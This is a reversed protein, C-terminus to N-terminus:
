YTLIMDVAFTFQEDKNGADFPLGTAGLQGDYWDYRCEPRILVNPHPRWNLGATVEYFDGAFGPGGPWTHIEPLMNPVGFIRAGDDDRLWEARLCASWCPNIKYLFYQNIGYWEADEAPAQWFVGDDEYGYNQVLVYQLRNTVMHKLVFSSVFRNRVGAGPDQAGSSIAFTASTRKSRSNWMVGGMLDLDDNLDEFMMWGRHFGAAVSWQNSLKYTALM